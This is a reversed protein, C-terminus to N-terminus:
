SPSQQWSAPEQHKPCYSTNATKLRKCLLYLQWCVPLGGFLYDSWQSMCCIWHARKLAMLLIMLSCTYRLM